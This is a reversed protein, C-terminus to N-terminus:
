QEALHTSEKQIPISTAQAGTGSAILRATASIRFNTPVVTHRLLFHTGAIIYFSLQPVFEYYTQVGAGDM